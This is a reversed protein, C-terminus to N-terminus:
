PTCAPTVGGYGCQVLGSAPTVTTDKGPALLITRSSQYGRLTGSEVDIAQMILTHPVDPTLYKYALTEDFSKTGYWALNWATGNSSTALAGRGGVAVSGSSNTTWAIGYLNETTGAARLTWTTANATSLLVGGDGVAYGVTSNTFFVGNLNAGTGSALASWTGGSNTTKLIVGGDGVAFGITGSPFFVGNLNKTTGSARVSWSAGGNTSRLILGNDGVANGNSTTTFHVGNLNGTTGSAQASFSAGNVTKLITGSDGVAWGNSTGTFYTGNLNRATGSAVATWSTGTTTKVITGAEGVAFGTNTSPFAVGRLNKGTGSAAATWTAGRDTSRIINGSDGVACGTNTNGFRVSRFVPGVRSSDRTAGDVRIRIWKVNNAISAPANSVLRAKLLSFRPNVTKAVYTTDGPIVAFSVSDRHVTDRRPPNLSTDITLIVAKWTRLAALSYSKSSIDINGTDPRGGAPYAYWATDAEPASLIVLVSDLSFLTDAASSKFLATNGPKFLLDLTAYGDGDPFPGSTASVVRTEFLCSSLFLGSSLLLLFASIGGNWKPRRGRSAHM